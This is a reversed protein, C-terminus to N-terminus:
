RYRYRYRLPRNEHGVEHPPPFLVGARARAGLTEKKNFTPNVRVRKSAVEEYLKGEKEPGGGWGVRALKGEKKWGVSGM